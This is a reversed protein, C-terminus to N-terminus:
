LSVRLCILVMDKDNSNFGFEFLRFNDIAMKKDLLCSLGLCQIGACRLVPRQSQLSPLVFRELIGTMPENNEPTKPVYKKLRRDNQIFNRFFTYWNVSASLARSSILVNSCVFLRQSRKKKKM